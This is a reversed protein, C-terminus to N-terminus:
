QSDKLVRSAARHARHLERIVKAQDRLTSTVVRVYEYLDGKYLDMAGTLAFARRIERVLPAPVDRNSGRVEVRWKRGWPEEKRRTTM